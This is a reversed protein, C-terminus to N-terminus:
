KKEADIGFLIFDTYMDALDKVSLTGEPDFWRYSWNTMGLIAFTIVKPQINERFEGATIGQAVTEEILRRFQTRKAQITAANEPTLHRIERYYVRAIEGQTKIDHIILEVVKALKEKPNKETELILQQRRLLDNIYYLHIDMLLAEKSKFHYYFSGKTVGITDVIDQISTASFGKEVFLGISQKILETRVM